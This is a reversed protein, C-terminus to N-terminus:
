GARLFDLVHRTFADPQEWNSLHAADIEVYQAGAISGAIARGHEPPTAPDHSGAIVLTPAVITKISDRQDMDRVAACCASYGDASTDMLMRRVTAVSTPARTQFEPTFWRSIVADTVAGMGKENVLQIRADWAAAPAMLTSTNSLVLRSIRQPHDTALRMGTMGGLSLGCFHTQAIGLADLLDIADQALDAISCPGTPLDSAGHGRTDYRLVRFHERLAPMQPEWMELNTGLSNCLTLWPAGAEGDIRYHLRGGQRNLFESM